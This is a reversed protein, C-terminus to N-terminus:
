KRPLKQRSDKQHVRTTLNQIHAHSNTFGIDIVLFYSCNMFWSGTMFKLFRVRIIFVLLALEVAAVVVTVQVVSWGATVFPRGFIRTGEQGKTKIGSDLIRAEKHRDAFDHTCHRARFYAIIFLLGGLLAFLLGVTSLFILIIDNRIRRLPPPM